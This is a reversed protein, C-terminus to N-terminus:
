VYTDSKQFIKKGWQWLLVVGERLQPIAAVIGCLLLLVAISWNDKLINIITDYKTEMM